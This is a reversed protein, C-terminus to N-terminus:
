KGWRKAIEETETQGEVSISMEKLTGADYNARQAEATLRQNMLRALVGVDQALQSVSGAAGPPVTMPAPVPDKYRGNLVVDDSSTGLCVLDRRDHGLQVRVPLLAGKGELLRRLEGVTLVPDALPDPAPQHRQVIYPAMTQQVAEPSLPVSRGSDTGLLGSLALIWDRDRQAVAARLKEVLELPGTWGEPPETPNEATLVVGGDPDTGIWTVPFRASRGVAVFLPANNIEWKQWATGPTSVHPILDAARKSQDNEM